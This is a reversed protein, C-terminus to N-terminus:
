FTAGAELSVILSNGKSGGGFVGEGRLGAFTNATLAKQVEAFAGGKLGKNAESDSGFCYLGAGGFTLRTDYHVVSWGVDFEEDAITGVQPAFTSVEGLMIGTAGKFPNAEAALQVGLNVGSQYAAGTWVEYPANASFPALNTNFATFYSYATQAFSQQSLLSPPAANTLNSPPAPANSQALLPLCSVVLLGSMLMSKFKM